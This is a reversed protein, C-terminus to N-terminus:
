AAGRADTEGGSEVFVKLEDLSTFTFRGRPTDAEISGNSFMVYTNGGSAYTGVVELAGEEPPAVHPADAVPEPRPEEVPPEPVEAIVAAPETAPEPMVVEPVVLAPDAEAPDEPEPIPPEPHRDPEEPLLDPLLPEVEDAAVPPEFTPETGRRTASLGALGGVSLSAAVAGAGALSPRRRPAPVADPMPAAIVPEPVVVATREDPAPGAMLTAPNGAPNREAVARELHRLRLAVVAIGLLVAGASATTAGAITMALGSELRVFPFGQIVSAIGGVIMVISLAFLAIIM